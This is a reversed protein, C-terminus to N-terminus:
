WYLWDGLSQFEEYWYIQRPELLANGTYGIVSRNFGGIVALKVKREGANGTYGIVSRNFGRCSVRLAAPSVANGTYGIV